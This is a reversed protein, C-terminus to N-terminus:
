QLSWETSSVDKGVEMTSPEERGKELSYLPLSAQVLHKRLLSSRGIQLCQERLIRRVTSQLPFHPTMKDGGPSSSAPIPPSDLSYSTANKFLM